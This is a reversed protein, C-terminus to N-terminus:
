HVDCANSILSRLCVQFPPIVVFANIEKLYPSLAGREIGPRNNANKQIITPMVIVLM